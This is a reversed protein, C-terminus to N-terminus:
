FKHFKMWLIKNMLSKKVIGFICGLKRLMKLKSKTSNEIVFNNLIFYSGCWLDFCQLVM